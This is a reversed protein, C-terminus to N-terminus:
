TQPKVSIRKGTQASSFSIGQRQQSIVSYLLTLQLTIYSTFVSSRLVWQQPSAPLSSEWKTLCIQEIKRIEWKIGIIYFGEWLFNPCTWEKQSLTGQNWINETFIFTLDQLEHLFYIICYTYASSSHSNGEGQTLRFCVGLFGTWLCTVGTLDNQRSLRCGPKCKANTSLVIQCSTVSFSLGM